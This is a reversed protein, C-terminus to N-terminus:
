VIEGDMVRLNQVSFEGSNAVEVMAFGLNWKNLPSYQPNLQCACGTSWCGKPRGEITPEHHESTQHFHGCLATAKSRLFLGRAPNVPAQITSRYEHGHIVNLKGLRIVRKDGVFEIGFRRMELLEPLQVNKLQWFAPAKRMIYRDLREEHNGAKFVVRPNKRLKRGAFRERVYTFFQKGAELEAAYRPASPDKDFDSLEHSDLIDGNLLIGTAGRRVATDLALEVTRKDHYPLHVDNLVLWLGAGDLRFPEYERNVPEPLTAKQRAM